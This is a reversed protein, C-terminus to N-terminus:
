KNEQAAGNIVVFDDSECDSAYDASPRRMRPVSIQQWEADEKKQAALEANPAEIIPNKKGRFVFKFDSNKNFIEVYKVLASEPLAKKPSKSIEELTRSGRFKFQPQSAHATFMITSFSFVILFNKM